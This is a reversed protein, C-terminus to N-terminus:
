RATASGENSPGSEIGGPGVATVYYYYTTGSSVGMDKASPEVLGSAYRSEEGSATGRYLNYTVGASGQWSLAIHRGQPSASLNTPAALSLEDVSVSASGSVSGQTATVLGEGTSTATFVTSSGEGPSVDGPATTSWAAGSLDVANGYPDTGAASFELSGGVVLTAQGPSVSISDLAAASVTETQTADGYGAASATLTATGAATDEYYFPASITEGTEITTEITSSWPGSASTSFRGAGSSSSLEVAVDSKPAEGLGVQMAASAEGATLDQSGTAFSLAEQPVPAAGDLWSGRGSCLDFGTLCPAGNNGATIDRFGISSGYVYSADVAVGEVASRGAWMPTSASTGGVTFWGTQGYYKTGDYVAVGRPPIPM